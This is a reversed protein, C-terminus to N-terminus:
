PPAFEMPQLEIQDDGRVVKRRVLDLSLDDITLTTAERTHHSRRLLAQIRALLETFSFPKILYDDGGIQLGKVRDDVSKKASLILVPTLLQEKRLRQILDFGDLGPFMIDVVVM